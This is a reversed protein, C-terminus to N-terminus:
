WFWYLFPWGEECKEEQGKREFGLEQHAGQAGEEASADNYSRTGVVSRILCWSAGSEEKCGIVRWITGARALAGNSLVRWFIAPCPHTPPHMLHGYHCASFNGGPWWSLVVIGPKSGGFLITSFHYIIPMSQRQRPVPSITQPPPLQAFIYRPCIELSFSFLLSSYLYCWLLM